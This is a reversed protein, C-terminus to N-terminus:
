HGGQPQSAPANLAAPERLTAVVSGCTLMEQGYYPNAVSTDTQLWDAKTMPCHLQYLAPAVTPSPPALKALEIMALSLDKLALRLATVDAYKQGALKAIRVALDTVPAPGAAALADASQKIGPLEAATGEFEDRALMRTLKLYNAMLRDLGRQGAANLHVPQPEAAQTAPAEPMLVHEAPQTSPAPEGSRGTIPLAKRQDFCDIMRAGFYPNRVNGAAQLWFGGGQDKMFMPCHLEQVEQQFSPPVGTAKLLKALAVSLDALKQRAAVIDKAEALKRAMGGATAVEKHQHWFHPHDPIDTLVLRALADALNSAAPGIGEITDGALKDAIALYSRVATNLADSVSDPLSELESRGALAAVPKQDAAMDGRIMKALAERIKAESDILFQGSIVVMEGPKLGDLIEVRDDGAQVGMMVNRPEFQGEGLSVFAVQREGTDIIASRPALVRDEALQSQLQINAFMGPKLLGGPNQFELRVKVERTKENLYPYIYIVRGTWSQGPIYALTMVAEQGLSVYPLQYEYLTAMVWVKSLDALRFIQMGANVKMGENAHKEIVVGEYPSAIVMTKSPKGAKALADIQASAIDFYLLRTRAAQVLDQAGRAADPVFSAGIQGANKVALLYEEQAAFLDPSYIEFLPDGVKVAAGLYDVDLKEIWGSIKTNIDRVRTEDYDVTGVTRITRALPGTTVPQIRVGINQVVVPDITVKGSFKSPDLPTLKMHCIPCDGPKPLIVWPHMGCTYYHVGDEAEAPAARGAIRNWVKHAGASLSANWRAGAWLGGVLVILLVILVRLSPGRPPKSSPSPSHGVSEADVAPKTDKEINADSEDSM